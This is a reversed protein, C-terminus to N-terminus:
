SRGDEGSRGFGRFGGIDRRFFKGINKLNENLGKEKEEKAGEGPTTAGSVGLAPSGFRDVGDRAANILVSGFTSPDFRGGALSPTTISATNGLSGIGTGVHGSGVQLPTLLPSSQALNDHNPSARFAAFLNM